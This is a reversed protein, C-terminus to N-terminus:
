GVPGAQAYTPLLGIGVTAVGMMTVTIVFAGKRGVQDGVRGFILAGIPRFFFGAGFLGLAALLGSTPDLATFFNKAIVPALAGFVFFDYWEFSTGVASAAIVTRLPTIEDHKRAAKAAAAAIEVAM